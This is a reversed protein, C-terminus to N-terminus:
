KVPKLSKMFFYKVNLVQQVKKLINFINYESQKTIKIEVQRNLIEDVVKYERVLYALTKYLGKKSADWIELNVLDGPQNLGLLVNSDLLQGDVIEGDSINEILSRCYLRIITYM